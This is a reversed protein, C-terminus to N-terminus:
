SDLVVSALGPATNRGARVWSGGVGHKSAEVLGKSADEAADVGFRVSLGVAARM